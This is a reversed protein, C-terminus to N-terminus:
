HSQSKDAIELKPFTQIAAPVPILHPTTHPGFQRLFTAHSQTSAEQAQCGHAQMAPVLQEASL